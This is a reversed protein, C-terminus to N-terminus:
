VAEDLQKNLDELLHQTMSQLLFCLLKLKNRFYKLKDQIQKEFEELTKDDIVIIPLCVFTIAIVLSSSM